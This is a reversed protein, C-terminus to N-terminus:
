CTKNDAFGLLPVEAAASNDKALKLMDIAEQRTHFTRVRQGTPLRVTTMFRKGTRTDVERIGEM